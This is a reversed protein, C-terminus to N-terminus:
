SIWPSKPCTMVSRPSLIPIVHILTERAIDALSMLLPAFTVSGHTTAASSTAFRCVSEVMGKLSVLFLVSLCLLQEPPNHHQHFTAALVFSRGVTTLASPALDSQKSIGTLDFFSVQAVYSCIQQQIIPNCIAQTMISSLDRGTAAISMLLLAASLATTHNSPVVSHVTNKSHTDHHFAPPPPNNTKWKSHMDASTQQLPTVQCANVPTENFLM